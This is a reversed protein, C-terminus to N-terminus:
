PTVSLASGSTLNTNYPSFATTANDAYTSANTLLCTMMKTAMGYLYNRTVMPLTFQPLSFFRNDVYSGNLPNTGRPTM